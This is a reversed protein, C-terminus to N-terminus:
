STRLTVSPLDIGEVVATWTEHPAIFQSDTLTGSSVLAGAGLPETGSQAAMASALEALCLAPSGLVNRGGGEAVPQGDKLLRITFSGLQDALSPIADPTLPRPEGVILGAHFGFSAVFDAPQFTWGAYACDIIEFGLAIWEVSRLVDAPEQTGAGLPERLKFMIEPEIKPACMSLVPLLATNAEADHV